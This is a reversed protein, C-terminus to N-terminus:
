PRDRREMLYHSVIWENGGGYAFLESCALLFLRWRNFQVQAENKWHSNALIETVAEQSADLLTLWSDCTRAYHLGSVRWHDLISLDQQLHLPLSDAPMIGGFFFHKSMWENPGERFPYAIERHAFVHKFFKGDPALWSAVRRYLEPWNRMHEFMEISVIRDFPAANPPPQFENMDATLVRVNNLGLQRARDRIFAGQDRSNSVATFDAKPFHGAAWLTFSGWGCGMDLVHMGDRVDARSATLALTEDEARALLRRENKTDQPGPKKGLENEPWICASYKLWPGLMHTFLAPPVEYHQINSERPAPALPAGRMSEIFVRLAEQRGQASGPDERKLVARHRARIAARLLPEPIKGAEALRIGIDM